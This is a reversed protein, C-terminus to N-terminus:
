NTRPKPKPVPTGTLEGVVWDLGELNDLLGPYPGGCAETGTALLAVLLTKMNRRKIPFVDLTKSM